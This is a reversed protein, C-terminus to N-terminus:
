PKNRKRKCKSIAISQKINKTTKIDSSLGFRQVNKNKEEEDEVDVNGANVRHMSQFKWKLYDNVSNHSKYKCISILEILDM